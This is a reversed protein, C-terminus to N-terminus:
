HKTITRLQKKQEKKLKKKIKKQLHNISFLTDVEVQKSEIEKLQKNQQKKLTDLTKNAISIEDFYVTNNSLKENISNAFIPTTNACMTLIFSLLILNKKIM